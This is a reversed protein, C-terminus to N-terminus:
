SSALTKESLLMALMIPATYQGFRALAERRTQEQEATDDNAGPKHDHSMVCDKNTVRRFQAAASQSPLSGAILAKVFRKRFEPAQYTAADSLAPVPAPSKGAIIIARLHLPTKL